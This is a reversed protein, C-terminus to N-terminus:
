IHDAISIQSRRAPDWNTSKKNRIQLWVLRSVEFIKDIASWSHSWSGQIFWWNGRIAYATDVELFPMYLPGKSVSLLIEACLSKPNFMQLPPNERSKAQIQLHFWARISKNIWRRLNRCKGHCKHHHAPLRAAALWLSCSTECGSKAGGHRVDSDADNVLWREMKPAIFAVFTNDTKLRWSKEISSNM